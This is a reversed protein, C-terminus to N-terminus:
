GRRLVLTQTETYALLGEIGNEAGMGSQKHGGFPFDPSVYQTENIWVTGCEIAMGLERGRDLDASWISVGLGYQTANTRDIVEGVESFRLLPVVPGFQEEVVIRSDDPPNDIIVPRILYGSDFGSAAEGLLFVHGESRSDALIAHVRDFQTENQVPGVEADGADPRDFRVSAVRRAFAESFRDYISDHVYIRKTASCIQGANRMAGWTLGEVAKEIDADALVIAADNGGLELTLRKLTAAASRMVLRGTATSGTFSIKDIGPHETMWPGLRDSGSIVNLVGPPLADRLLEGLRLTAVPTYPSPKLVVTNGALIAPLIKWCAQVIPYNWPAIAGVVGIPVRHVEVRREPTDEAVRVPLELAAIGRSWRLGSRIEGQAAPFPKGQEKVILSAIEDGHKELVAAIRGLSEQRSRYSTAKWGPLARRAADVARDLEDRTCDPVRVFLDGTSPDTVALEESGPVAVGDITMTFRQDPL